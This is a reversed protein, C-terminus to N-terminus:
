SLSRIPFLCALMKAHKLLTLGVVLLKEIERLKSALVNVQKVGTQFEIEPFTGDAADRCLRDSGSHLNCSGRFFTNYLSPPTLLTELTPGDYNQITNLSLVPSGRLRDTLATSHVHLYRCFHDGLTIQLIQLPCM